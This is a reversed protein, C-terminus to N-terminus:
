KKGNRDHLILWTELAVANFNLMDGKVIGLTNWSLENIILLLINVLSDSCYIQFLFM